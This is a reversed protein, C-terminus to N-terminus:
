SDARLEDARARIADQMAPPAAKWWERLTDQDTCAQIDGLSPGPTHAEEVLPDVSYMQSKGRSVLLPVSKRGEIHSLAAIRTGGVRDKGFTVDPDCYLRVRRGIWPSADAGWCAALVRRM